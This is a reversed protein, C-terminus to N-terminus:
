CVFAPAGALVPPIVEPARYPALNIAPLKLRLVLRFKLSCHHFPHFAPPFRHRLACDLWEGSFHVKFHLPLCFGLDRLNRGRKSGKRGRNLSWNALTRKCGSACALM